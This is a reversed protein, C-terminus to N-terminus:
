AFCVCYIEFLLIVSLDLPSPSSKSRPQTRRRSWRKQKLTLAQTRRRSWRKQKLMLHNLSLMGM